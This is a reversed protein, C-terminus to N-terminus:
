RNRIHSLDSREWQNWTERKIKEYSIIVYRNTPRESNRRGLIWQADQNLLSIDRRLNPFSESMIEEFISELGKEEASIRVSIFQSVWHITLGILSCYARNVKRWEKVKEEESEIIEITKDEFESIKEEAQEFRSKFDKYIDWKM